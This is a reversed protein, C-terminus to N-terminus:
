RQPERSSLAVRTRSVGESQVPQPAYGARNEVLFGVLDAERFRISRGSGLRISPVVGQRAWRRLTGPCIRLFRAADNCKLLDSMIVELHRSDAALM